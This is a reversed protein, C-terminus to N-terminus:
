PARVHNPSGYPYPLIPHPSSPLALTALCRALTGRGLTTITLHTTITTTYTLCSTERGEGRISFAYTGPSRLWISRRRRTMMLPTMVMMTTVEDDAPALYEPYEPGPVYDQSPPAQEPEEPDPVYDTSAPAAEPSDPEHLGFLDVSWALPDRDSSIPTYTVESSTSDLSM